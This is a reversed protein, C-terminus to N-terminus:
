MELDPGNYDRKQREGDQQTNAKYNESAEYIGEAQSVVSKFCGSESWSRLDDFNNIEAREIAEEAAKRDVSAESMIRQTYNELEVKFQEPTEITKDQNTQLEIKDIYLKYLDKGTVGPNETKVLKELQMSVTVPQTQQWKIFEERYNRNDQFTSELVREIKSSSRTKPTSPLRTAEWINRVADRTSFQGKDDRVTVQVPKSEKLELAIQHGRKFGKLADKLGVGWQTTTNGDRDRLTM